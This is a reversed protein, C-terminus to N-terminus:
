VYINGQADEQKTLAVIGEVLAVIAPIFTWFFLLYLVGLGAKGAIFKHVGFGGLFIALLAYTVKNVPKGVAPPAASYPALPYAAAPYPAPPYPNTAPFAAPPYTTAPPYPANQYPVAALPQQQYFQQQQPIAKVAQTGCSPCFKENPHIVAGCAGCFASAQSAPAYASMSAATHQAATPENAGYVNQENQESTPYDM